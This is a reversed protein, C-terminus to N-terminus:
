EGGGKEAARECTYDVTARVNGIAGYGMACITVARADSYSRWWSLRAKFKPEEGEFTQEFGVGEVSAVSAESLVVDYKASEYNGLEAVSFSIDFVETRPVLSVEGDDPEEGPVPIGFLRYVDRPIGLADANADTVTLHKLSLNGNLRKDWLFDNFRMEDMVTISSAYMSRNAFYGVLSGDDVFGMAENTLRTSMPSGRRGMTMGQADFRIWSAIDLVDRNAQNIQEIKQEFSMTIDYATQSLNSEAVAVRDGMSAILDLLREIDGQAAEVKARAEEWNREGQAVAAEAAAVTARSAELQEATADGSAELDDLAKRAAALALRAEELDRKAEGEAEKLSDLDEATSYLKGALDGLAKNTEDTNKQYEERSVKSNIGGASAEILAGLTGEFTAADTEVDYSDKLGALVTKTADEIAKAAGDAVSRAADIGEKIPEIENGINDATQQAREAAAAADDAAKNAKGIEEYADNVGKEIAKVAEKIKEAREAAAREAEDAAREDVAKSSLNGTVTARHNAIRVIVRDGDNLKTTATCPTMISGPGDLVVYPVEAVVKVTAYQEGAAPVPESVGFPALVRKSVMM